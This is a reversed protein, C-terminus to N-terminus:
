EEAQLKRVQPLLREDLTKRSTAGIVKHRIVGHRDIVFTEPVGYVGWEIGVAVPQAAHRPKAVRQDSKYVAFGVM